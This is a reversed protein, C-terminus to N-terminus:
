GHFNGRQWPLGAARKELGVRSTQRLRVELAEERAVRELGVLEERLFM